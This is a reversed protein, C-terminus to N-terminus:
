LLNSITLIESDLQSNITNAVEQSIIERDLLKNVKLKASDLKQQAHTLTCNIDLDLSLKLISLELQFIANSIMNTLCIRNFIGIEEKIYDKLDFLDVAILSIAVGRPDQVSSGMLSVINNRIERLKPIMYDADEDSIFGIFNFLSTQFESVQVLAQSILDHVLGCSVNGEEILLHAEKLHEQAKTLKRQISKSLLKCLNEEIYNRLDELQWDVYSYMDIMTIEFTSQVSSILQDNARDADADTVKVDITYLTNNFIWINAIVFTYTNGQQIVDIPEPIQGNIVIEIDGIGSEDYVELSVNITHLDHNITFDIIEPPSTDDDIVDHENRIFTSLSDGITVWDNDNDRAIIDIIYTGINAPIDWRGQATGILQLQYDDLGETSKYNVIIIIESFGTDLDGGIGDDLDTINWEFYGPNSDLGSGFYALSLEPPTTDDDTLIISSTKIGLLPNIPNNNEVEVRIEHSGVYSPVQYEGLSNGVLINDIYVKITNENIGSGDDYAFVNWIGSSGDTRDGRQYDIIIDPPTFDPEMLAIISFTTVEGYVINNETDVSTTVDIWGLYEEWHYIKLDEENGQIETEEYPLSLIIKDLYDVDTKLNYYKGAVEFGTPNEVEIESVTIETEGSSEVESFTIEIGTIPESITVSTGAPTPLTSQRFIKFSRTESRIKRGVSDKGYVVLTHTGDELDPLIFDGQVFTTEQGDLIYSFDSKINLNDGMTYHPDWSFGWADIYSTYSLQGPDGMTTGFGFRNLKDQPLIFNLNEAKLVNNIRVDFSNTACDFDIRVHYWIGAGLSSIKQYNGYGDDYYLGDGRGMVLMPGWGGFPPAYKNVAGFLSTYLGPFGLSDVAFYFEFAGETVDGVDKWAQPTSYGDCFIKVVNNHTTYESIVEVFQEEHEDVGWGTPDEGIIDTEFSHTAPYWGQNINADVASSYSVFAENLNDGINYDPDWSYGVGDLYAYYPDTSTYATWGRIGNLYPRNVYFGYPGYKVGNIYLYFTYATLGKYGGNGCEFDIRIHYWTNDAAPAIYRLAGQYHYYFRDSYLSIRPGHREVGNESKMITMGMGWTADDTRWWSEITGYTQASDFMQYFNLDGKYAGDYFELVKKHGAMERIIQSSCDPDAATSWDKPIEGDPQNDFGYTGRYYGHTFYHIKDEPSNFTLPYRISFIRDVSIINWFTIYGKVNITHSGDEEPIPILVSNGSFQKSAQGDITYLQLIFEQEPIINLEIHERLNEGMVYNPDWSFGIADVYMTNQIRPFVGFRFYNLKIQPRTFKLDTLELENNIVVSFTDKVCDFSIRIHYWSNLDINCIKEIFLSNGEYYLYYLGDGNGIGLSPGFNSNLQSGDSLAFGSEWLGKPAIADVAFHFEVEGETRDEIYKLMQTDEDSQGDNFLRAPKKHGQYEYIVEIDNGGPEENTWGIPDGGVVSDEFMHSAKYYFPGGYVNYTINRPTNIYLGDVQLSDMFDTLIEDTHTYRAEIGRWFLNSVSEVPQAIDFFCERNEGPMVTIFQNEGYFEEPYLSTDVFDFPVGSFSLQIFEPVTGENIFSMPPTVTPVTARSDIIQIMDVSFESEAEEIGNFVLQDFTFSEDILLKIVQPKFETNGKPIVIFEKSLAGWNLFSLTIENSGLSQCKINIVHGVGLRSPNYAPSKQNVGWFGQEFSERFIENVQTYDLDNTFPIRFAMRDMFVTEGTSHLKIVLDFQYIGGLPYSDSMTIRCNIQDALNQTIEYNDFTFSQHKSIKEIEKVMLFDTPNLYGTIIIQDFELDEDILFELTRPGNLIQGPENINFQKLIIGDRLLNFFVYGRVSGECDISIKDGNELEFPNYIPSVLNLVERNDTQMYVMGDRQNFKQIYNTFKPRPLQTNEKSAFFVDVPNGWFETFALNLEDLTGGGLPINLIGGLSPVQVSTRPAIRTPQNAWTIQDENFSETDWLTMVFPNGLNQYYISLVNDSTDKFHYPIQNINERIFTTRTDIFLQRTLWLEPSIGYNKNPALIDVYADDSPESVYQILPDNTGTLTWGGKTFSEHFKVGEKFPLFEIDVLPNDTGELDLSFDVDLSGIKPNLVMIQDELPSAINTYIEPIDLEYEPKIQQLEDLAEHSDKWQYNLLAQRLEAELTAVSKFDPIEDTDLWFSHINNQLVPAYFDITTETYPYLDETRYWQIIDLYAGGIQLQIRGTLHNTAYPLQLSFTEDFHEGARYGGIGGGFLNLFIKGDEWPARWKGRFSTYAGGVDFSAKVFTRQGSGGTNALALRYSITDGVEYGGQRKIDKMPLTIGSEPQVEMAPSSVQFLHGLIFSLVISAAVYILISLGFSAISSSLAATLAIPLLVGLAIDIIVLEMLAIIFDSFREFETTFFSIINAATMAIEVIHGIISIARGFFKLAREIGEGSIHRINAYILVGVNVIIMVGLCTTGIAATVNLIFQLGRGEFEEMHTFLYFTNFAGTVALFGGIAIMVGGILAGKLKKTIQNRNWWCRIGIPDEMNTLDPRSRIEDIQRMITRRQRNLNLYTELSEEAHIIDHNEFILYHYRVESWRIIDEFENLINVKILFHVNPDAVQSLLREINSLATFYPDTSSLVSALDVFFNGSNLRLFMIATDLDFIFAPSYHGFILSSKQVEWPRNDFFEKFIHKSEDLHIPHIGISLDLPEIFTQYHLLIKDHLPDSISYPIESLPIESGMVETTKLVKSNAYSIVEISIPIGQINVRQEYLPTEDESYDNWGIIYCIKNDGRLADDLATHTTSGYVNSVSYFSYFSEFDGLHEVEFSPNPISQLNIKNLIDYNSQKGAIYLVENQTPEQESNSIPYRNRGPYYGPAWSFDLADIYFSKDISEDQIAFSISSFGCFAGFIPQDHLHGNPLALNGDLYISVSDLLYDFDIRMHYWKNNEIQGFTIWGVTRDYYILEGNTDIAIDVMHEHGYIDKLFIYSFKKTYDSVAFWFEVKGWPVPFPDTIFYEMKPYTTGSEKIDNIELVRTHGEFGNIVNTHMGDQGVYRWGPSFPNGNWMQLNKDEFGVAAPYVGIGKDMVVQPGIDLYDTTGQSVIDDSLDYNFTGHLSPNQTLAWLIQNEIMSDPSGMIYNVEEYENNIMSQILINEQIEYFHLLSNEEYTADYETVLWIFDFRLDIVGDAKALHNKPYQIEFQFTTEAPKGFIFTYEAYPNKPYPISDGVGELSYGDVLSYSQVLNPNDKWTDALTARSITPSGFIRMVLFINVDRANNWKRPIAHTSYDTDPKKIILDIISDKVPDCPLVIQCIHNQTLTLSSFPSADINDPLGDYDSDTNYPDLGSNGEEVDKLGDGDSDKFESEEFITINFYDIKFSIEIPKSLDYKYRLTHYGPELVGYPRWASYNQSEASVVKDKLTIEDDDVIINYIEGETLSISFYRLGNYTEPVYFRFYGLGDGQQGFSFVREDSKEFFGWLNPVVPDLEEYFLEKQFEDVDHVLDEDWDLNVIIKYNLSGQGKIRMTHSKPVMDLDFRIYAGEEVFYSFFASDIEPYQDTQYIENIVVGDVELGLFNYSFDPQVLISIFGGAYFTTDYISLPDLDLGEVTDEAILLPEVTIWNYNENSSIDSSQLTISHSNWDSGFDIPFINIGYSLDYTEGDLSLTTFDIGGIDALLYCEEKANFYYNQLAVDEVYLFEELNPDYQSTEPPIGSVAVDYFYNNFLPVYSSFTMAFLFVAVVLNKKHKQRKSEM